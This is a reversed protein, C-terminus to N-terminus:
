DRVLKIEGASIYERLDRLTATTIWKNDIFSYFRVPDKGDIIFFFWTYWCDNDKDVVEYMDGAKM